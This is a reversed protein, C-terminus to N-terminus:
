GMIEVGIIGDWCGRFIVVHWNLIQSVFLGFVGGHDRSAFVMVIGM